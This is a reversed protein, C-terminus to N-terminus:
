KNKIQTITLLNNDFDVFINVKINKKTYMIKGNILKYEDENKSKNSYYEFSQKSDNSLYIFIVQNNDRLYTGIQKEYKNPKPVAKKNWQHKILNDIESNINIPIEILTYTYGEEKYTEFKFFTGDHVYEGSLKLRKGSFGVLHEGILSAYHELVTSIDDQTKTLINYSYGTETHSIENYIIQDNSYYDFDKITCFDTVQQNNKTCATSTLLFTLILIIIILKKM